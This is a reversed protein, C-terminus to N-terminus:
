VKLTYSFAFFKLVFFFYMCALSLLLDLVEKCSHLKLGFWLIGVDLLELCMFDCIVSGRLFGLVLFPFFFFWM